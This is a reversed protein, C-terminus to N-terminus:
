HGLTLNQFAGKPAYQVAVSELQLLPQALDGSTEKGYDQM